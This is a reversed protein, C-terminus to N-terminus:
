IPYRQVPSKGSKRPTGLNMMDGSGWEEMEEVVLRREDLVLGIERIFEQTISLPRSERKRAARAVEQVEETGASMVMAGDLRNHHHHQICLSTRSTGFM